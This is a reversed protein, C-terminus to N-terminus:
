ATRVPIERNSFKSKGCKSSLSSCMERNKMAITATACSRRLWISCLYWVSINWVYSLKYILHLSKIQILSTGHCLLLTHNRLGFTYKKSYWQVADCLLTKYFIFKKTRVLIYQVKNIWLENLERREIKLGSGYFSGSLRKTLTQMTGLLIVVTYSALIPRSMYISGNTPYQLGVKSHFQSM